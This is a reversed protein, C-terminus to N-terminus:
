GAFTNDFRHFIVAAQARNTLNMPALTDATMGTIIGHNVAWSWADVAFPLIEDADTYASLDGATTDYGKYAAYRYLFTVLETRTLKGEPNFTTATAGTTIGNALAWYAAETYFEGAPVDTFIGTSTVAPTGEMRHLVTVFQARNMTLAPGFTAEDMGKMYGKKVVYDTAEHWWDGMNVDEFQASPCNLHPLAIPLEESSAPEAAGDELTTLTLVTDVDAPVDAFRFVLTAVAANIEDADAYGVRVTGPAASDIATMVSGAKVELLELLATDYAVEFLGNTSDMANVPVTLTRDAHSIQFASDETQGNDMWVADLTGTPVTNYRITGQPAASAAPANATVDLILAPWVDKGFSGLFTSLYSESIDDYVLRYVENTKGTWASFYLANDAGVVLSSRGDFGVPFRISLDSPIESVILDWSGFDQFMNCRWVSGGDDIMYILESDAETDYGYWDKYTIKEHGGSAIGALFSVGYRGMDFNVFNPDMLTFPAIVANERIGFAAPAEETSFFESYALDWIWFNQQYYEDCSDALEKGETDLLHMTGHNNDLLYFTDTGPVRTVAMPKYDLTNGRKLGDEAAMDWSYFMSTGNEDMLIGGVTVELAKVTVTCEGYVTEDLKSAARITTTGLSVGTVTGSDDVTAIAEDASTFVLDKDSLNWPMAAASLQTTLGLLVEVEEKAFSVSAPVDTPTVWSGWEEGWQPFFLGSAAKTFPMPPYYDTILSSGTAPDFEYYYSYDYSYGSIRALLCIINNVPDYEMTSIGSPQASGSYPSGVLVPETPAGNEDLTFSYLDFRYRSYYDAAGNDVVSLCYFTGNGDNALTGTDVGVSGLERTEGTYKDVTLLLGDGTIGYVTDTSADYALDTLALPLKCVFVEDTMDEVPVVYLKNSPDIVMAYEGVATAAAATINSDFWEETNWYYGTKGFTSWSGFNEDFALRTPLPPPDGITQRIEYTAYNAAYDATQIIFKYGDVTDLPLEFTITDGPKADATTGAYTLRRNGTVDYLLVGALYQDDAATVQMVNRETDVTVDLIEPAEVDVTFPIEMTAGKGLSDWDVKGDKVHYETALSLQLLGREGVELDPILEIDLYQPTDMWSQYAYYYFAAGVSGGERDEWVEGTTTNMALFRSAEATRIPAYSWQYFCDGRETNIANREPIYYQDPVIPNGGYYYVEYPKDGYIIGMANGYSNNLYSSRKEEGTAFTIQTGVDYMSPDSWDGYYALVPLSLTPLLEGEATALPVARVFAQVYAGNPNEQDLLVKEADSLTITVTVSVSGGAPVEVANQYQKLFLHADYTSVRGDGNLDAYDPNATLESGLTAHDLLSQGDARTVRGDGNFDLHLNTEGAANLAKGDVIFQADADLNRTYLDLYAFGADDQFVDQTFADANLHYAVTEGTLNNLQFSFTYVGSRAPDDGLEAKVMGDAMGDVTLFAPTRIAASVDALGSGQQIVPYYTGEGSLLPSATSMLLAHTLARQTMGDFSLDQESLYQSVVASLGAVQPAAMSTGSMLEYQDTEPVAGNVSYINGGPATIDPKLSLDGPVGFSSFSSMTKYASDDYNGSLAAQITLKGTRYATGGETMQETGAAAIAAGAAQTITVVPMTYNIGNLDAYVVGPENNYILLAAAGLGAAINAKEYYYLDGRSCVAIKGTLDIGAYDAAAGNGSIYVFDHETGNGDASTDLNSLPTNGYAYGTDPDSLTENYGMTQGNVLLSSGISGDNDVSAVAMFSSFSGPSGVTDLNVGDSYLYHNTTYDSWAGDNGASAIVTMGSERVRDMIQQYGPDYSAGATTSGLSLNVSDAGLLMADEVSALIDSDFAGGEKGFVKMVLIQADPATGAVYVEELADIFAGDKEIYRNAAAIGAVHSGHEGQEDNDHTIDLDGDAYNFGYAAKPNVYLEEATLTKGQSTMSQYANLQTLVAAIDATDMLDVSKGTQELAYAFADARFSQHDTDLGTDIVAVRRGAGTYGELWAASAGTMQGSVAMDPTYSGGVSVVDPAYRNEEVVSRVGDLEAIEEMAWRPVNASILNAALTLNWVVDLKKGQLVQGEITKQLRAQANHLEQRYNMASVNTGIGHLQFGAGITSKKELHITVRVIEDPDKEVFSAAQDNLSGMHNPPQVTVASNDIQELEFRLEDNADVAEAPLAFGALMTVVLLLALVKRFLESKKM